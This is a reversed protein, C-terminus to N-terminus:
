IKDEAYQADPVQLKTGESHFGKDWGHKAFRIALMCTQPTSTSSIWCLILMLMEGVRQSGHSSLRMMFGPAHM